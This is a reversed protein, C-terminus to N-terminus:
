KVNDRWVAAIGSCLMSWYQRAIHSPFMFFLQLSRGSHLFFSKLKRKLYGEGSRDKYMEREKGFNGEELIRKVIRRVKSRKRADYFPFEDEPMGLRDVLVCGFAQWPTMLDMDTLIRRLKERDIKDKHVHLFMMWDCFQRLGIGSTLFHHWLHNFIYFANFDDAPTNVVTGAFDMTRLGQSLGEDSYAQYIKDYYKSANVDSYRHIEVPTKGIRIDYHKVNDEPRGEEKWTALASLVECARLYNESGVYIDIDGCARLEPIPYNRALAQGKLLVSSIGAADLASVVQVVSNNLMSHTAMNAMVHGKLKAKLGDALQESLKPDNLVANAVLSLVSQTKALTFVKGWDKFDNPIQPEGGWLSVRLLELFVDVVPHAMDSFKNDLSM